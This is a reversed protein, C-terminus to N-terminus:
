ECYSHVLQSAMSELFPESELIHVIKIFDAPLAESRAELCDLLAVSRESMKVSKNTTEDRTDEPILEQAYLAQALSPLCHRILKLLGERQSRFAAVAVTSEITAPLQASSFISYYFDIVRFSCYM